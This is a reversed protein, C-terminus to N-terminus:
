YHLIFGYYGSFKRDGEPSDQSLAKPKELVRKGLIEKKGKNRIERKQKKIQKYRRIGDIYNFEKMSIEKINNNKQCQGSKEHLIPYEGQRCNLQKQM